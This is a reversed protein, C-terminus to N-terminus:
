IHILSLESCLPVSYMECEQLCNVRLRCLVCVISYVINLVMLNDIVIGGPSM